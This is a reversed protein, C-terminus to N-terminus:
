GHLLARGVAIEHDLVCVGASKKAVRNALKALVKTAAVDVGIPIGTWRLVTQRVDQAHSELSGAAVGTFDLFAEDVSYVEVAAAHRGLIEMMRRSMDGSLAYNSSFVKM